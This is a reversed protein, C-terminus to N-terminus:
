ARYVNNPIKEVNLRLVQVVSLYLWLSDIHYKLFEQLGYKNLVCKEVCQMTYKEHQATRHDVMEFRYVYISNNLRQVM